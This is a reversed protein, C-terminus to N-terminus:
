TKAVARFIERHEPMFSLGIRVQEDVEADYPVILLGEDTELASVFDARAANLRNQLEEPLVAALSNGVRKLKLELMKM